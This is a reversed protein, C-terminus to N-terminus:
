RQEYGDGMGFSGSLLLPPVVRLCSRAVGDSCVVVVVVVAITVVVAGKDCTSWIGSVVAAAAAAASETRTGGEAIGAEKMSRWKMRAGM